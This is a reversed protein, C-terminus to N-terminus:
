ASRSLKRHPLGRSPKKCTEKAHMYICVCVCKYM